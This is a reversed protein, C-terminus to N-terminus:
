KKQQAEVIERINEILEDEEISEKSLDPVIAADFVRLNKAGVLEKGQLDDGYTILGAVFTGHTACILSDPYPSMRNQYLLPKLYKNQAIGNDFVGVVTTKTESDCRKVVLDEEMWLGDVGLDTKPMPVFEEVLELLANQLLGDLKFGDLNLIKYMISSSSYNLPRFEIEQKGLLGEFKERNYRNMSRDQFNFLKVKYNAPGAVRTVKPFYQEIRDVGSIGYANNEVDRIKAQIIQSDSVSDVHVIVSNEDSVGIVNNQKTMFLAEVPRRHSKAHADKHLHVKLLVAAERSSLVGESFIREVSSSLEKSRAKLGNGSLIWKPLIGGGGGEVRQYDEVRPNFLIVPFSDSM